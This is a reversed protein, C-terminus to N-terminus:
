LGARRGDGDVWRFAEDGRIHLSNVEGDPQTVDFAWPSATIAHVVPACILCGLLIVLRVRALWCSSRIMISERIQRGRNEVVMRM